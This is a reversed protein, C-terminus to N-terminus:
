RPRYAATLVKAVIMTRRAMVTIIQSAMRCFYDPIEVYFTSCLVYLGHGTKRNKRANNEMLQIIRSVRIGFKPTPLDLLGSM